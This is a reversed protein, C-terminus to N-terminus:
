NIQLKTVNQCGHSQHLVICYLVICYLVICYLAICYVYGVLEVLDDEQSLRGRSKTSLGRFNKLQAMDM